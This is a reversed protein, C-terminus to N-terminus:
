KLLVTIPDGHPYLYVERVEPRREEGFIAEVVASASQMRGITGHACGAAM